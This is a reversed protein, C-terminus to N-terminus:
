QPFRGIQRFLGFLDEDDCIRVIKGDELQYLTTFTWELRKQSAPVGLLEGQHTGRMVGHIAVQDGEAVMDELVVKLDPFAERWRRSLEELREYGVKASKGGPQEVVARPSVLERLVADDRQNLYEEVFRRIVHKHTDTAPSMTIRGPQGQATTRKSPM